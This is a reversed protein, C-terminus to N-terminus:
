LLAEALLLLTCAVMTFFHLQQWCRMSLSHVTSSGKICHVSECASSVCHWALKFHLTNLTYKSSGAAHVSWLM